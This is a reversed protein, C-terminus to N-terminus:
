EKEKSYKLAPLIVLTSIIASTYIIATQGLISGIIGFVIRSVSTSTTNLSHSIAFGREIELKGHISKVVLAKLVPSTGRTFMGLLLLLISIVFPNFAFIVLVAIVAMAIEAIVLIKINGYKDALRTLVLRGLLYGVFYIADIAGITEISIGKSAIYPTLFIYLSSGGFSDLVSAIVALTYKTNGIYKKYGHDESVTIEKEVKSKEFTILLILLALIIGSVGIIPVDLKSIALTTIITFVIRGIDGFATVNGISTSIKENSSYKATKSISPAEFLGAAIGGLVTSIVLFILNSSFIFSLFSFVNFLLAISMIYENGIRRAIDGSLFSSLIKAIAFVATLIGIWIFDFGIKIQLFPILLLLSIEFGKSFLQQLCLRFYIKKSM